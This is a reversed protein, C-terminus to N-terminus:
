RGNGKVASKVEKLDSQMNTIQQMLFQYQTQTMYRSDVWDKTAHSESSLELVRVAGVIGEWESRMHRVDAWVLAGIGILPITAANGIRVVWDWAAAKRRAEGNHLAVFQDTM